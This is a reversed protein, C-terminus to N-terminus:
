HKGLVLNVVWCGRVHAGGGRCHSLIDLNECGVVEIADAVLPMEGLDRSGYM